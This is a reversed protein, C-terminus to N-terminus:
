QWYVRWILVPRSAIPVVVYTQIVMEAAVAVLLDLRNPRYKGSPKHTHEYM